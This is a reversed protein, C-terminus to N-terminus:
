GKFSNRVSPQPVFYSQGLFRLQGGSYIFDSLASYFGKM